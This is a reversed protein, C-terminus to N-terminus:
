EFMRLNFINDENLEEVYGTIQQAQQQANIITRKVEETIPSDECDVLDLAAFLSERDNPLKYMKLAEHFKDESDDNRARQTIRHYVNERSVKFLDGDQCRYIEVVDAMILEHTKFKPLNAVDKKSTFTCAQVELSEVYTGCAVIMIQNNITQVAHRSYKKEKQILGASILAKLGSPRCTRFFLQGDRRVLSMKFQVVVENHKLGQISTKSGFSCSRLSPLGKLHTQKVSKVSKNRSKDGTEKSYIYSHCSNVM